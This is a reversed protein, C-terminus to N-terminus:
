EPVTCSLFSSRHCNKNAQITKFCHQTNSGRATGRGEILYNPAEIGVLEHVITFMLTLRSFARPVRLSQWGLDKITQTVSFERLYHGKAFCVARPQVKELAAIDGKEHPDWIASCYELQPRVLAKCADEKTKSTCHRLRRRLLGLTQYPKTTISNIHISWDLNTTLDVGPYSKGFTPVLPM